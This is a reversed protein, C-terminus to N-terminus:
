PIETFGAAIFYALADRASIRNLAHALADILADLTHASVKRLWAKVKSFAFEIPSFDPSYAPLFLLTAGVAEIAERVATTKHCSLNDLLVIDGPRLTPVLLQTVYTEFIATNVSGEIAMGTTFGDLRLSALVSVNTGYNRAQSAYAREGRLARAYLRYMERHTSSEDVVVVRQAPLTQQQDAFLVREVVSRERAGVTEKKSYVGNTEVGSPDDHPQCRPWDAGCVLERTRAADWRAPDEGARGFDSVRGSGPQKDSTESGDSGCEGDNSVARFLTEGHQYEHAALGRDGAAYLRRNATTHGTGALGAL